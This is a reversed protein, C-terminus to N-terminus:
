HGAGLHYRFSYLPKTGAARGRSAVFADPNLQMLNEPTYFLTQKRQADSKEQESKVMKQGQESVSVTRRRQVPLDSSSMSLLHFGDRLPRLEQETDAHM